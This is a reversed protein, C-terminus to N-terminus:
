ERCERNKELYTNKHGDQQAHLYVPLLYPPSVGHRCFLIRDCFDRFKFLLSVLVVCLLAPGLGPRPWTERGMAVGGRRASQGHDPILEICEMKMYTV